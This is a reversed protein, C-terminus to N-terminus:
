EHENNGGRPPWAGGDPGEFHRKPVHKMRDIKQLEKLVVEKAGVMTRIDTANHRFAIMDGERPTVGAFIKEFATM